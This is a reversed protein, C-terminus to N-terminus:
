NIIKSLLFDVLFRIIDFFVPCKSILTMYKPFDKAVPNVERIFCPHM